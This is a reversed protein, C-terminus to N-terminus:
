QQATALTQLLQQIVQLQQSLQEHQSAPTAQLHHRAEHLKALLAQQLDLLVQLCLMTGHVWLPTLTPSVVPYHTM